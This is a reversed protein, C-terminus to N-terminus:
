IQRRLSGVPALGQACNLTLKPVPLPDVVTVSLLGTFIGAYDSVRFSSSRGSFRSM